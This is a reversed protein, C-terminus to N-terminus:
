LKFVEFDVSFDLLLFDLIEFFVVIFEVLLEFFFGFLEFVKLM